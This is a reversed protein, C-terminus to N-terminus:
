RPPDGKWSFSNVYKGMDLAIQLNTGTPKGPGFEPGYAHYPGNAGAVLALDNKVAALVVIRLHTATTTSSVPWFDAVEGYGHEYGVMANPIEYAVTAGPYRQQILDKVIQRPDRGAAPRSFLRISGTDGGTFRATVGHDDTSVEYAANPAPYSVSFSRDPATYRPNVAVPMGRPPKGCDPPCQFFQQQQTVVSQSAYVAGMAIAITVALPIALRAISTPRLHPATYNAQPLAFGPFSKTAKTDRRAVQSAREAAGCKPCFTKVPVAHECHTCLRFSESPEAAPQREQLLTAQLAIRVALLAVGALGFRIALAALAPVGHLDVMGESALIALTVVTLGILLWRVRRHETSENATQSAFWLTIGLLGGAAVSTIPIAIGHIGAEVILGVTPRERNLLSTAFQPAYRALTAGSAFAAAGLAGFAYGDIVSRNERQAAQNKTMLRAMLAPLALLVLGVAPIVFGDQVLHRASLSTAIPIDYSQAVIGGAVLMWASGLVAGLAGTILLSRRGLRQFAGVERLYIVFLVLLWLAGVAILAAAQHRGALGLVVAVLLFLAIRFRMRSQKPLGPLLSTTPLPILANERPAAVFSTPRLWALRSDRSASINMGCAGCYTGVSAGDQCTPSHM